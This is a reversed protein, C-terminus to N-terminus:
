RRMQNSRGPETRKRTEDLATMLVALRYSFTGPLTLKGDVILQTATSQRSLHPTGPDTPAHSSCLVGAHRAYLPPRLLITSRM